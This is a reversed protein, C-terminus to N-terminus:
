VVMAFWEGGFLSITEMQLFFFHVSVYMYGNTKLKGIHWLSNPGPVSYPQRPTMIGGWRLTTNIPDCIRLARRVRERTVRYGQSRIVGWVFTQGAMPHMRITRQVHAILDDDSIRTTSDNIMGYEVRRRYVTMRSVMLMRSINVWTFSLSRLYELQEKEIKFPPRGRRDPLEARPAGYEMRSYDVALGQYYEIWLNLATCLMERIDKISEKMSSLGPINSQEIVRLVDSVGQLILTLHEIAYESFNGNASGYQRGCTTLFASVHSFFEIWSNNTPTNIEAM